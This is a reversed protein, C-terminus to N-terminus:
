PALLVSPCQPYSPSPYRAGPPHSLALLVDGIGCIGNSLSHRSITKPCQM